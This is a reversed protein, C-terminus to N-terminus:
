CWLVAPLLVSLFPTDTGQPLGDNRCTRHADLDKLTPQMPVQKSLDAVQHMRNAALAPLQQVLQPRYLLTSAFHAQCTWIV